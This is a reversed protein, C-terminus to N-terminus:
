LRTGLGNKQPPPFVAQYLDTRADGPYRISQDYDETKHGCIYLPCSYISAKYVDRVDVNM